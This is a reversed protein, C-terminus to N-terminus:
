IVIDVAHDYLHVAKLLLEIQAKGGACRAPGDGKLERGLFLLGDQALNADLHAAGTHERRDGLEVRHRDGTGGDRAGRQVVDVLDTAFVHALTVSDDHVLCAVYDGLDHARYEVLARGIRDVPVHGLDAGHAAAGHDVLIALHGVAADGDVAGRLELLSQKM